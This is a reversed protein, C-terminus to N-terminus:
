NNSLYKSLTSYLLRCDIPKTLYDDSGAEFSLKKEEYMAYATQSIIPVKKMRKIQRIAEYGNMRPMKIDMLIAHVDHHMCMSVAEVGDKAWLIQAQTDALVEKLYQYNVAEDEAILIIKDSWDVLEGFNVEPEKMKGSEVFTLPITFYFMSGMGEKSKVWIKGGLLEVLSRSIALGLGAGRYVRLHLHEIKQFREFVVQQM